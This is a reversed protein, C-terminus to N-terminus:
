WGTVAATSAAACVGVLAAPRGRTPSAPFGLFSFEGTAMIPVPSLVVLPCGAAEALHYGWLCLPPSVLLLDTGEM